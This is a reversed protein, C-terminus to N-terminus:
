WWSYPLLNGKISFMNNLLAGKRIWTDFGCHIYFLLCHDMWYDKTPKKLFFLGGSCKNPDPRSQANMSHPEITEIEPQMIPLFSLSRTDVALGDSVIVLITSHLLNLYLWPVTHRLCTYLWPSASGYRYLWPVTYYLNLLSMTSQLIGMTSDLLKFSLWTSGNYLTTSDILTLHTMTSHLLTWFLLSSGHCLSTSAILTLYLWSQTCNLWSIYLILSYFWPLTYQLWASWTSGHYLTTSDLLILYLWPVYLWTCGHYPTTSDLIWTSGHTASVLISDHEPRCDGPTSGLVGRAQAVLARGSLWLLWVSRNGGWLM